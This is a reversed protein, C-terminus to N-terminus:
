VKKGALLILKVPREVCVEGAKGCLFSCIQAFPEEHYLRGSVSSGSDPGSGALEIYFGKVIRRIPM